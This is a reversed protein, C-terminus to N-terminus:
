GADGDDTDIVGDLYGAKVFGRAAQGNVTTEVYDWASSNYMTTLYTVRTGAPITTLASETLAPDDTLKLDIIATADPTSEPWALYPLDPLKGKIQSADVYGVRYGGKNVEYIVLMWGGDYGLAYVSETTSVAAKGNAARFAAASPAAYVPLLQDAKLTVGVFGDPKNKITDPAKPMGKGKKNYNGSERMDKRVKKILDVNANELKTMQKYTDHHDTSSENENPHYWTMQTFWMYCPSDTEFKYGHRAFIENFAFKLTDYQYEWLEAETLERTDSDPIIYLNSDALSACPVLALLVLALVTCILRKTM